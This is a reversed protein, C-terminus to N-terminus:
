TMLIVPVGNYEKSAWNRWKEANFALDSNSLVVIMPKGEKTAYSGVMSSRCGQPDRADLVEIVIESDQLVRKLVLLQARKGSKEDQDGKASTGKPLEGVMEM